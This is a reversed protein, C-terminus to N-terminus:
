PQREEYRRSNADYWDGFAAWAEGSILWHLFPQGAGPNRTFDVRIDPGLTTEPTFSIAPPKETDFRENM